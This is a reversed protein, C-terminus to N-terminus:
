TVFLSYNHACVVLTTFIVSVLVHGHSHRQCAPLKCLYSGPCSSMPPFCQGYHKSVKNEFQLVPSEEHVCNWHVLWRWACSCLMHVCIEPNWAHLGRERLLCQIDRLLEDHVDKCLIALYATLKKQCQQQVSEEFQARTGFFRYM